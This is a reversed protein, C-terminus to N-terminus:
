KIWNFFISYHDVSANFRGNMTGNMTRELLIDQTPGLTKHFEVLFFGMMTLSVIWMLLERCCNPEYKRCWEGNEDQYVDNEEM